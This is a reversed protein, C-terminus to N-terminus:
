IFLPPFRQVETMTTVVLSMSLAGGRETWLDGCSCVENSRMVYYSLTTWEAGAVVPRWVV